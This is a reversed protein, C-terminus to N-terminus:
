KCSQKYKKLEKKVVKLILKETIDGDGNILKRIEEKLPKLQENIIRIRDSNMYNIIDLFDIFENNNEGKIRECVVNDDIASSIEYYSDNYKIKYCTFVDYIMYGEIGNIKAYCEVLEFVKKLKIINVKDEESLCDILYMDDIETVIRHKQSFKELWEMYSVDIKNM